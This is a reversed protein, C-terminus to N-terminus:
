YLNLSDSMFLTYARLQSILSTLVPRPPSSSLSRPHEGPPFTRAGVRATSIYVASIKAPHSYRDTKYARSRSLRTPITNAIETRHCSYPDTNTVDETFTVGISINQSMRSSRARMWGARLNAFCSASRSARLLSFDATSCCLSTHSSFCTLTDHKQGDTLRSVPKERGRRGGGWGQRWGGSCITVSEQM